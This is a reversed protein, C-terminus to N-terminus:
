KNFIVSKVCSLGSRFMRDPREVQNRKRGATVAAVATRVEVAGARATVTVVAAPVTAEV